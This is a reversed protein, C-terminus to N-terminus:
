PRGAGDAKQPGSSRAPTPGRTTMASQQARRRQYAESTLFIEALETRSVAHLKPRWYEMEHVAPTRGILDRYLAAVFAEKTGGAKQFYEETALVRLMRRTELSYALKRQQYHAVAEGGVRMDYHLREPLLGHALLALTMHSFLVPWLVGFRLYLWIWALGGAATITVLTPSPLHVVAFLGAAAAIAAFRNRFLELCAPWLFLQLGLQQAAVILAKRGVWQVTGLFSRETLFRWGDEYPERTFWGAIVLGIALLLTIALTHAWAGLANVHPRPVSGRRRHSLWIVAVIAVYGPIRWASGLSRIYWLDLELLGFVLGLEVLPRVM